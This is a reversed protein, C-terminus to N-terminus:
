YGATCSMGGGRAVSASTPQLAPAAPSPAAAGARRRGAPLAALRRRFVASAPGAFSVRFSSGFSVASSPWVAVVVPVLVLGHYFGAPTVGGAPSIRPCWPDLRHFFKVADAAQRGVHEFLHIPGLRAGAIGAGVDDVEAHAIGVQRRRGVDDLLDLLGDALRAGVAIGGRAANGAQAARLGGIVLAAEAHLEIGLGLDDGRQAGLFAEGIHRLRDGRGAVHHQHGVRAIRDVGEAEQHRAARDARHRRLRRRIEEVRELARDDMRDRLRGRHHDAIRGIRGGIHRAEIEVLVEDRERLLM